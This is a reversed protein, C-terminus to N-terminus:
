SQYQSRGVREVLDRLHNWGLHRLYVLDGFEMAHDVVGLGSAGVASLGFPM